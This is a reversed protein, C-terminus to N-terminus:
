AGLHFRLRSRVVASGIECGNKGGATAAILGRVCECGGLQARRRVLTLDACPDLLGPFVDRSATILGSGPQPVSSPALSSGPLPGSGRADFVVYTPATVNGSRSWRFDVRREPLGDRSLRLDASGLIEQHEDHFFRLRPDVLTQFLCARRGARLIEM